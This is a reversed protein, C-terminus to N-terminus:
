KSDPRRINSIDGVAIWASMAGFGSKDIAFPKIATPNKLFILICYRKDKFNRFFMRTDKKTIGISTGYADLINKVKVPSLDAFQLIKSVEARVTVLCGSDKFYITDGNKITNWPASKNSYWRSEITKIRDLIKATFGLEKKM